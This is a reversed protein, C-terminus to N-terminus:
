GYVYAFGLPLLWGMAHRLCRSVKHKQSSPHVCRPSICAQSNDVRENVGGDVLHHSSELDEGGAGNNNRAHSSTQSLKDELDASTAFSLCYGSVRLSSTLIPPIPPTRSILVTGSQRLSCYWTEGSWANSGGMVGDIVFRVDNEGGRHYREGSACGLLMSTKGLLVARRM